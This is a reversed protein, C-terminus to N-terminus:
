LYNLAVVTAYDILPYLYAGRGRRQYAMCKRWYQEAINGSESGRWTLDREQAILGGRFEYFKWNNIQGRRRYTGCADELSIVKLSSISPFSGGYLVTLDRKAAAAAPWSVLVGIFVSFALLSVLGAVAYAGTVPYGTATLQLIPRRERPGV